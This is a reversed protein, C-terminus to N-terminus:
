LCIPSGGAGASAYYRHYGDYVRYRYPPDSKEKVEVPPLATGSYFARLVAIMREECFGQVNPDREPPAIDSIPVVIVPDNQSPAVTYTRARPTFGSMGAADWWADPIEFQRENVISRM